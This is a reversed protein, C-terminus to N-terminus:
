GNSDNNTAVVVVVSVVVVGIIVPLLFGGVAKNRAPVRKTARAGFAEAKGAVAVPLAAASRTSQATAASSAFLSAVAVTAALKKSISM